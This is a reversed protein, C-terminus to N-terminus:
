SHSDQSAVRELLGAIVPDDIRDIVTRMGPVNGLRWMKHFLLVTLQRAWYPHVPFDTLPSVSSSLRLSRELQLVAPIESLATMPPMQAASDTAPFARVRRAQELDQRYLHISGVIHQYWGLALGLECAMMEQLMTFLFIDYGFGLMIDNSRMHNTLCLRDDRVMFHLTATCPVDAAEASIRLDEATFLPLIARRSDRDTLLLRKVSDWLSAGAERGAFIRHGYCSGRITKGDDSVKRWRKSYYTIVDLQDSGAVHWCTEGIAYPLSWRRPPNLILRARPNEIRFVSDTCEISPLGRPSTAQGDDLIRALEGAFAADLSPYTTM